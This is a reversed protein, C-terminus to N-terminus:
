VNSQETQPSKFSGQTIESDLFVYEVGKNQEVLFKMYNTLMGKSQLMGEEVM